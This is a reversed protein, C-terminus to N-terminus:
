RGQGAKQMVREVSTRRYVNPGRGRGPASVLELAGEDVLGDLIGRVHNLTAPAVRSFMERATFPEDVELALRRVQQIATETM